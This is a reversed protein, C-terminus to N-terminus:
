KCGPVQSTLAAGTPTIKLNVPVSSPALTFPIGNASVTVDTDGLRVLLQSGRIEPVTTGTNEIVGDIPMAGSQTQVCV